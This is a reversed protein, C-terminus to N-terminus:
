ETELEIRARLVKEYQKMYMVQEHLLAIQKGTLTGNNEQKVLFDDLKEIKVALDELEKVMRKVFEKM